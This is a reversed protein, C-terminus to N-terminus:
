GWAPPPLPSPSGKDPMPPPPLGEPPVVPGVPQGEGSSSKIPAIRPDVAQAPTQAEPAPPSVAPPSMTEAPAADVAVPADAADRSCASLSLVILLASIKLVTPYM